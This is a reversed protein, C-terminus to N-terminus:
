GGGKMASGIVGIKLPTLPWPERDVPHFARASAYQLHMEVWTKLNFHSTDGASVWDQKYAKEAAKLMDHSQVVCAAIRKDGRRLNYLPPEDSRRAANKPLPPIMLPNMVHDNIRTIARKPQPTMAVM